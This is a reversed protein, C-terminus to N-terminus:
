AKSGHPHRWTWQGRSPQPFHYQVQRFNTQKCLSVLRKGNDNTKDHFNNKGITQPNTKHSDDGIRANFDGLVIIINHPPESEISKLLDSYFEEKRETTAVETPAYAAIITVM